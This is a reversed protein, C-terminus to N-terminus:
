FKSKLDEINSEIKSIGYIEGCAANAIAASAHDRSALEAAKSTSSCNIREINPM